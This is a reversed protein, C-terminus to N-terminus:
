AYNDRDRSRRALSLYYLLTFVSTLAGAVYTWAAANLVRGVVEDEEPSVIGTSLLEQRARRSANFEVPLNIIQFVVTASFVLVGLMILRPSQFLFGAMIIMGFASSGLSALPVILNRVILGTYHTADQLAHGAEHAAIGVAALSRNAYVGESLRLVKQQPDYHDTMVGSIPEISVGTAGGDKMIAAAAQAGTLGSRAAIRSGEAYATKIRWQAWLTLLLGPIAYLFYDMSNILM